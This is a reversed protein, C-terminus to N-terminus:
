GKEKGNGRDKRLQRDRQRAIFEQMWDERDEKSIM